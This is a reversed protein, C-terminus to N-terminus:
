PIHLVVYAASAAYHVADQRKLLRRAGPGGGVGAAGHVGRSHAVCPAGRHPAADRDGVGLRCAM